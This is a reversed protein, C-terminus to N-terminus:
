GGGVQARRLAEGQEEARLGCADEELASRTVDASHASSVRCRQFRSELVLSWSPGDSTLDLGLDAAGELGLPELSSAYKGSEEFMREQAVVATLAVSVLDRFETKTIVRVLPIGPALGFEGTAPNWCSVTVFGVEFEEIGALGKEGPLVRDDVVVLPADTAYGPFTNPLGGCKFLGPAASVAIVSGVILINM